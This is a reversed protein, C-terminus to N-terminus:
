DTTLKVNETWSPRNRLRFEPVLEPYQCRLKSYEFYLSDYLASASENVMAASERIDFPEHDAKRAHDINTLVARLEENFAFNKLKMQLDPPFDTSTQMETTVFFQWGLDVAVGHM